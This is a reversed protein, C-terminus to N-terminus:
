PTAGALSSVPVVSAAFYTNGRAAITKAVRRIDRLLFDVVAHYANLDSPIGVM